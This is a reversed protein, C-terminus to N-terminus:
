QYRLVLQMADPHPDPIVFAKGQHSRAVFTERQNASRLLVTNPLVGPMVEFTADGEFLPDRRPPMPMTRLRLFFHRLFVNTQGVVELSALTPNALGRVFQLRM